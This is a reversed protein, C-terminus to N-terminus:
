GRTKEAAYCLLALADAEDLTKAPIGYRECLAKVEPKQARGSGCFYKRITNVKAERFTIRQWCAAEVHAAAGILQRRAKESTPAGVIMPSEIWIQDPGHEQILTNLRRGFTRIFYGVPMGGGLDFHGRKVHFKELCGKHLLQPWSSLAVPCAYAWGTKTAIDLALIGGM